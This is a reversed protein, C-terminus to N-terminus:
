RSNTLLGGMAPHDELVALSIREQNEECKRKRLALSTKFKAKRFPHKASKKNM